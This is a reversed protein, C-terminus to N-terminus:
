STFGIRDLKMKVLEAPLYQPSGFYSNIPVAIAFFVNRV